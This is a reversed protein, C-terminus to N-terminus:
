SQKAAREIAAIIRSYSGCRCINIKMYDVIQARTPRPTEKLLGAARMIQGPQCYGCQPTQEEIWAKQLPHSGTPSLGEITIVSRGAVDKIAHLCSLAPKGDLHVTCAGCQGVGCGYKTGTMKLQERLVWLLPTDPHATVERQAGNVTLAFKAMQTM